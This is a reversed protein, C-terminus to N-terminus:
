PVMLGNICPWRVLATNPVESPAPLYNTVGDLLLQVGKNKYASGMFIPVFSLGVQAACVVPRQETLCPM